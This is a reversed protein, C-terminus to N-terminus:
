EAAKALADAFAAVSEFRQPPDKALAKLVMAELKPAMSPVRERLHPPPVEMHQEM